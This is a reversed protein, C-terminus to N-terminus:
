GIVSSVTPQIAEILLAMVETAALVEPAGFGVVCLPHGTAADHTEVPFGAMEAELLAALTAHSAPTM